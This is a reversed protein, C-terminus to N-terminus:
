RERKNLKIEQIETLLKNYQKFWSEKLHLVNILKEHSSKKIVDSWYQKNIDKLTVKRLTNGKDKAWQLQYIILCIIIVSWVSANGYKNATLM